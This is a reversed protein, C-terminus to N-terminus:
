VVSFHLVHDGLHVASTSTPQLNTLNHSCTKHSSDTSTIEAKRRCGLFSSPAITRMASLFQQSGRVDSGVHMWNGDDWSLRGDKLTAVPLKM